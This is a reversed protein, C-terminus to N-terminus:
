GGAYRPSGEPVPPLKSVVAEPCGPRDDEGAYVFHVMNNLGIAGGRFVLAAGTYSSGWLILNSPKPSAYLVWFHTWGPNPSAAAWPRFLRM